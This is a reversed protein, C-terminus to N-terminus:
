KVYPEINRRCASWVHRKLWKRPLNCPDSIKDVTEVPHERSFFTKIISFCYIRRCYLNGILNISQSLEFTWLSSWYLLEIICVVLFFIMILSQVGWNRIVSLRHICDSILFIRVTTVYQGEICESIFLVLWFPLVSTYWVPHVQFMYMCVLCVNAHLSFSETCQLM